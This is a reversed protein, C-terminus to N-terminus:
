NDDAWLKLAEKTSETSTNIVENMLSSCYGTTNKIALFILASLDLALMCVVATLMLRWIIKLFTNGLNKFFNM